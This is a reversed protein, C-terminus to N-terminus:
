SKLRYTMSRGSGEAVVLDKELLMKLYARTGSEKLGLAEAIEATKGRAHDTLYDVIMQLNAETSPMKGADTEAPRCELILTTREPDFQEYFTPTKWGQQKWVQYIDALGSGTGKGVDVLQFMQILAGNRPDSVGGNKAREPELRFSGPNSLLFRDKERAVAVGPRGSYDANVLCNALAERLARRVPETEAFASIRESVRTYFDWLNEGSDVRTQDERYELAYHPFKEAIGCRSGFMLLGAMTPHIVGDESAAAAGIRCLFVDDEEREWMHGPRCNKMRERYRRLSGRDFVDAGMDDFVQMDQTKAAADRLMAQVEEETCRYDGEGSRRYSGYFPDEGMYVPRDFRQARPITIAIIQKGDVTEVAVDEESLINVSIRAPDNIIEWFEAILRQPDPLDVAHLTKDKWEEVGLLLIGGLTNAFACYTEWISHPLGGLAKKAEIRNNEQYKELHDLDIM